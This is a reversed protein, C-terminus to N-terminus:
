MHGRGCGTEGYERRSDDLEFRRRGVLARSSVRIRFASTTYTSLRTQTTSLLHVFSFFAETLEEVSFICSHQIPFPQESDAMQKIKATVEKIQDDTEFGGPGDLGLQSSLFTQRKVWASVDDVGMSARNLIPFSPSVLM